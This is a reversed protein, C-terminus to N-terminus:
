AADDEVVRAPAGWGGLYYRQVIHYRLTAQEALGLGQPFAYVQRM